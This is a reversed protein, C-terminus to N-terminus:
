SCAVLPIATARSLDQYAARLAGVLLRDKV